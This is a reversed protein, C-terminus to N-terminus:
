SEVNKANVKSRILIIILLVHSVTSLYSYIVVINVIQFLNAVFNVSKPLIMWLQYLIVNNAYLNVLMQLMSRVNEVFLYLIWVIHVLIVVLM